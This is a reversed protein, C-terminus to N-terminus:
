EITIWMEEGRNHCALIKDFLNAWAETSNGVWDLTHTTGPLLCGETNAAKNGTHIRIGEFLPVNLLLPLLRGFRASHTVVIQYTGRPICTEGPIKRGGTELKRDVDELIFCEFKDNVFLESVTSKNTFFKRTSRLKM